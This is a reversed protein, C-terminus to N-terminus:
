IQETIIRQYESLNKTIADFSEIPETLERKDDFVFLACKKSSLDKIGDIEYIRFQNKTELGISKKVYNKGQEPHCITLSEIAPEEQNTEFGYTIPFMLSNNVMVPTDKISKMTEILQVQITM